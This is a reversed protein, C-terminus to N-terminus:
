CAAEASVRTQILIKKKKKEGSPVLYFVTPHLNKKKVLIKRKETYWSAPEPVLM